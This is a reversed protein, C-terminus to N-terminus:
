NAPLDRRLSDTLDGGSRMYEQTLTDALKVWGQLRGSRFHMGQAYRELGDDFIATGRFYVASEVRSAPSAYREIQEEFTDFDDKLWHLEVHQDRALVPPVLLSNKGEIGAPVSGLAIDHREIVQARNVWLKVNECRRDSVGIKAKDGSSLEPDMYAPTSESAMAIRLWGSASIVGRDDPLPVSGRVIDHMSTIQHDAALPSPFVNPLAVKDHGSKTQEYSPRSM